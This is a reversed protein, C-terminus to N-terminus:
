PRPLPCFWVRIRRGPGFYRVGRPGGGLSRVAQAVEGRSIRASPRERRLTRVLVQLPFEGVGDRVVPWGEEAERHFATAEPLYPKSRRLFALIAHSLPASGTRSGAKRRRFVRPDRQALSLVADWVRQGLPPLPAELRRSLANKLKTASRLVDWPIELSFPQSANRGGVEFRVAEDPEGGGIRTVTQIGWPLRPRDRLDRDALAARFRRKLGRLSDQRARVLTAVGCRPDDLLREVDPWGHGRRALEEVLGVLGDMRWLGRANPQGALFQRETPTLALDTFDWAPPLTPLSMAPPPPGQRAPKAAPHLLELERRLGMDRKIVQEADHRLGPAIPLLRLPVRGAREVLLDTVDLVGGVADPSACFISRALAEAAQWRLERTQPCLFIPRRLAFVLTWLWGRELVLAPPFLAHRLHELAFSRARRYHGVDLRITGHASKPLDRVDEFLRGGTAYHERLDMTATLAGVAQEDRTRNDWGEPVERERLTDASIGAGAAAGELVETLVREVDRTWSRVGLSTETGQSPARIRLRLLWSNDKRRAAPGILTDVLLRLAAQGSLARHPDRRPAPQMSSGM